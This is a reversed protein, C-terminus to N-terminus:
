RFQKNGADPHILHNPINWEQEVSFSGGSDAGCYGLVQKGNEEKIKIDCCTPLKVAQSGDQTVSKKVVSSSKIDNESVEDFISNSKSRVKHSTDTLNSQSDTVNNGVKSSSSGDGGIYNATLFLAAPLLTILLVAGTNVPM